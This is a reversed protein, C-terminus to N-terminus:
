RVNRYNCQKCRLVKSYRHCATTSLPKAPGPNIATRSRRRDLKSAQALCKFSSHNPPRTQLPAILLSRRPLASRLSATLTVFNLKTVCTRREPGRARTHPFVVIGAPNRLRPRTVGVKQRKFLGTPITPHTRRERPTFSARPEYSCQAGVNPCHKETLSPSPFQWPTHRHCSSCISVLSPQM